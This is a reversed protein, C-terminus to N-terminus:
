AINFVDYKADHDIPHQHPPETQGDQPPPPAINIHKPVADQEQDSNWSENSEHNFSEDDSSMWTVMMIFSPLFLAAITMTMNDTDEDDEKDPANSADNVEDDDGDDCDGPMGSTSDTVMVDEGADLMLWKKRRKVMPLLMTTLTTINPNPPQEIPSSLVVGTPRVPPTIGPSANAEPIPAATPDAVPPDVNPNGTPNTLVDVADLNQNPARQNPTHHCRPNHSTQKRKAMTPYSPLYNDIESCFSKDASCPQTALSSIPMM